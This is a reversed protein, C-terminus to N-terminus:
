FRGWNTRDSRSGCLYQGSQCATQFLNIHYGRQCILPSLAARAKDRFSGLHNEYAAVVRNLEVASPERHVLRIFAERLANKVGPSM